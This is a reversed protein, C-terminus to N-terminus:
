HLMDDSPEEIWSSSYHVKNQYKGNWQQGALKSYRMFKKVNGNGWRSMLDNPTGWDDVTSDDDWMEIAITSNKGMRPSIYTEDFNVINKHWQTKTRFVERDDILIKIYPDCNVIRLPDCNRGTIDKWAAGDSFRIQWVGYETVLLLNKTFKTNLLLIKKM